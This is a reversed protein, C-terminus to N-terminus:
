PREGAGMAASVRRVVNDLMALYDTAEAQGGVSNAAEVVRVGTKSSVFQPGKKEYFPEVLLLKIDGRQAMAIIEALHGPSPPIGPKPELEGVVDLGFRHAFYSWSRHYTLIKAHRYPRIKGLWGGLKDSLGQQALTADLQDAIELQWLPDGGLREVLEGGFVAEDLRKDFAACRADYDAAHAADITKLRDRVNHAVVRGNWPDLWYHPNGLPHVDGMSRDVKQTPLELRIAGESADLHGTSGIRIKRNRSGDLILEEYGIELELGVRVWLDAKRAAMMTSPKAQIFHPDEQGNDLSTVSVHAGGVSEVISRLDSTTTVVTLPSEAGEGRMSLLTVASIMLWIPSIRPHM